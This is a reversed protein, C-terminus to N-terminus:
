FSILYYLVPSVTQSLFGFLNVERIVVVAAARAEVTQIRLTGLLVRTEQSVILTGL